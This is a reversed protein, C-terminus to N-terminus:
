DYPEAALAEVQVPSLAGPILTVLAEAKRIIPSLVRSVSM